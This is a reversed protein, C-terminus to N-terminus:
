YNDQDDSDEVVGDGDSDVCAAEFGGSYLFLPVSGHGPDQGWLNVLAESGDAVVAGWSLSPSLAGVCGLDGDWLRAMQLSVLGGMSSGAVMLSQGQAVIGYRDRFAPLVVDRLAALYGDARGGYAAGNRFPEDVTHGYVDLRDATNDVGLLVVDSFAPDEDLKADMQWNAFGDPHFLNQGDHMLLTRAEAAAPGHPVFGAPLLARVTRPLPLAETVMAPLQEAWRADTPPAVYGFRGNEDFFYATTTSGIAWTTGDSWKVKAGAAPVAFSAGALEVYWHEGTPSSTAPAATLDWGNIDGVLSLSEAGVWHTAFLWRDGDQLPWRAEWGVQTLLADLAAADTSTALAELVGDFTTPTSDDDDAADDDDGFPTDDDDPVVADDDNGRGVPCGALVLLMLALLLRM